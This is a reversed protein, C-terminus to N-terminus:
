RRLENSIFRRWAETEKKSTRGESYSFGAIKELAPIVRAVVEQDPDDMSRLLAPYAETSGIGGLAEVFYKRVWISRGRYTNKKDFLAESLVAVARQDGSQNLATAAAARVIVAPDQVLRVLYPVCDAHDYDGMASASAARIAPMPDTVLGILINKARDGKIQGLARVAVWRQRADAADDQSVESVRAMDTSGLAVIREFAAMRQVETAEKSAALALDEVPGAWVAAVLSFIILM